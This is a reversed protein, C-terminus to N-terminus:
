RLMKTRQRRDNGDADGAGLGPSRQPASPYRLRAGVDSDAARFGPLGRSRSTGLGGGAGVGSRPVPRFSESSASPAGLSVHTNRARVRTLCCGTLSLIPRPPRFWKSRPPSNLGGSESAGRLGWLKPLPVKGRWRPSHTHTHPDLGQLCCFSCSRLRPRTHLRGGTGGGRQQYTGIPEAEWKGPAPGAHSGARARHGGQPGSSGHGLPLLLPEPLAPTRRGLGAAAVRLPSNSIWASSSARAWFTPLAPSPYVDSGSGRSRATGATGWSPLPCPQPHPSILGPRPILAPDRGPARTGPGEM